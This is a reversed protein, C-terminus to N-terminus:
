GPINQIFYTGDYTVTSTLVGGCGDPYTFVSVVRVPFTGWRDDFTNIAALLGEVEFYVVQEIPDSLVQGVIATLPGVDPDSGDEGVYATTVGSGGDNAALDTLAIIAAWEDATAAESILMDFPVESDVTFVEWNESVTISPLATAAVCVAPPPPTSNCSDAAQASSPAAGFLLGVFILPLLVLAARGKTRRLGVIGGIVLALGIAITLALDGGSM